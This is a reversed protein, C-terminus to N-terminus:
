TAQGSRGFASAFSVGHGCRTRRLDGLQVLIKRGEAVVQLTLAGHGDVREQRVAAVEVAESKPELFGAQRVGQLQVEALERAVHSKKPILLQRGWADGTMEDRELDEITKQPQLSADSLICHIQQAGRRQPLPDRM